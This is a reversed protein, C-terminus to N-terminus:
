RTDSVPHLDRVADDDPVLVAGVGVLRGNIYDMTWLGLHLVAYIIEESAPNCVPYRSIGIQRLTNVNNSATLYHHFLNIFFAESM